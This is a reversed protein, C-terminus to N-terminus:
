RGGITFRVRRGKNDSGEGTSGKGGGFATLTGSATLSNTCAISWIGIRDSGIRYTGECTGQNRPLTMSMDGSDKGQRLSLTGAILEDIGEWQIAIPRSETSVVIRSSITPTKPHRGPATTDPTVDAKSTTKILSKDYDPYVITIKENRFDIKFNEETFPKVNGCHILMISPAYPASGAEPGGTALDEIYNVYSCDNGELTFDVKFFSCATEKFNCKTKQGPKFQAETFIKFFGKLKGNFFPYDSIDKDTFMGGWYWGPQLEQLNIYTKNKIYAYKSFVSYRRQSYNTNYGGDRYRFEISDPWGILRIPTENASVTEWKGASASTIPAAVSVLLIVFYAIRKM